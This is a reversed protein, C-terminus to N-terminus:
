CCDYRFGLSWPYVFWPSNITYVEEYPQSTYTNKSYPRFVRWDRSHTIAQKRLKPNCVMHISDTITLLEISDIGCGLGAMGVVRGLLGTM